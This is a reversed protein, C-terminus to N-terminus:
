KTEKRKTKEKAKTQKHPNMKEGNEIEQEDKLYLSHQRM